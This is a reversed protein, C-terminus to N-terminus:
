PGDRGEARVLGSAVEKYLDPLDGSFKAEHYDKYTSALEKLLKRDAKSGIAIAILKIGKDKIKRGLSKIDKKTGKGTAHGDTSLVIAKKSGTPPPKTPQGEGAKFLSSIKWDTKKNTVVEFGMKLASYLPTGGGASSNVLAKNLETFNGTPKNALKVRGGFNVLGVESGPPLQYLFDKQARISNGIKKGSMSGSTDSVLMVSLKTM